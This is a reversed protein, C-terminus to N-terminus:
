IIKDVVGLELAEQPTVKVENKKLKKLKMNLLEKETYFYDYLNYYFVRKPPKRFTISKGTEGTIDVIKNGIYKIPYWKGENVWSLTDGRRKKCLLKQGVRM